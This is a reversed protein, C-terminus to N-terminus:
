PRFRFDFGYMTQVIKFLQEYKGKFENPSEIFSETLIAFFEYSNELGYERFYGEEALQGRFEESSLIETLKRLGFQFKRAEWSNVGKTEFCLAHAIEHLALNRNDNPIHFGEELTDASFVLSKYAPNYEGLHHRRKIKSYYKSPYVIIRAVSRSLQFKKMGLTLLAIAACIFLKIEEKNDLEGYCVFRKKSRLWQLRKVFRDKQKPPFNNFPLLFTTLLTKEKNTLPKVKIFIDFLTINGKYFYRLAVRLFVLLLGACLIIVAIEKHTETM